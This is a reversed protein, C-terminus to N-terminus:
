LLIGSAGIPHSTCTCLFASLRPVHTYWEMSPHCRKVDGSCKQVCTHWMLCVCLLCSNSVTWNLCLFMVLGKSVCALLIMCASDCQIWANFPASAVVVSCSSLSIRCNISTVCAYRCDLLAASGLTCGCLCDVSCCLWAAGLTCVSVTKLTGAVVAVSCGLMASTCGGRPMCCLPLCFSICVLLAALLRVCGRVRDRAACSARCAVGGTHLVCDFFTAFLTM